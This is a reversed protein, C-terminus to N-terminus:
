ISFKLFIRGTRASNNWAPPRVFQCVTMVFSITAKRLKVFFFGLYKRYQSVLAISSSVLLLYIHQASKMLEGNTLNCM